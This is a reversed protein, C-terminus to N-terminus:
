DRDVPQLRRGTAVVTLSSSGRTLAVYLSKSTYGQDFFVVAHPFELGKVLLPTGAAFNPLKRGMQRTQNRIKWTADALSAYEGLKCARLAKKMEALLERRYIYLGPIQEIAEIGDIIKGIDNDDAIELLVQLQMGYKKVKPVRGKALGERVTKLETKVKTMCRGAFELVSLSRAIGTANDFEEAFKFLDDCDIPEVCSFTGAMRSAFAQCQPGFSHITVVKGHRTLWWIRQQVATINNAEVFTIPAGDLNIARGDQLNTRQEQLWTGLEPNTDRWRRPETPGPISDFNPTVHQEWDVQDGAFDFIGQLPDGLIRSPLIEKLQTILAHQRISCDQYEDVYVGSYSARVIRKYPELSLLRTAGEYISVWGDNSKPELNIVGSRAPFSAVLRLAWGAITDIAYKFPPVNLKTLRSRLADVGAHTHTLILEHGRGFNRIAEVIVHTKGCGAPAIMAGRASAAIDEAEPM